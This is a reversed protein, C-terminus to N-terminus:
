IHNIQIQIFIASKDESISSFEIGDSKWNIKQPSIIEGDLLADLNERISGPYKSLNEIINNFDIPTKSYLICLNERGPADIIEIYKDKGPIALEDSEYVLAPSIHDLDPFIRFYRNEADVGFVYVFAPIENKLYIRFYTGTVFPETSAFIGHDLKEVPVVKETNLKLQVSGSLKHGEKNANLYFLEYAYRTFDVFDGYTIWMFGNNGWAKGWSNIIEFSGGYKEDNYGVVCVAHGPFDRSMIETPIWYDKASYFSPPCHMGIVVPLNQSISKKVANIKYKKEDQIDFLKRFDRIEGTAVPVADEPFYKPCFEQFDDFKKLKNFRIFELAEFLDIGEACTQDDMVRVNQYLYPPSLTLPDISRQEPTAILQAELISVASWATAWAPSTNLQMQNGPTPCYKKLSHSSPISEFNRADFNARVKAKAYNEDNFILGNGYKQAHTLISILVLFLTILRIM